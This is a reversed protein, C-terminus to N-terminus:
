EANGHKDIDMVSMIAGWMSEMSEGKHSTVEAILDTANCAAIWAPEAGHGNVYISVRADALKSTDTRILAIAIYRAVEGIWVFPDALPGAHARFLEEYYLHISYQLGSDDVRWAIIWADEPLVRFMSDLNRLAVFVKKGADTLINKLEPKMDHYRSESDRQRGVTQTVQKHIPM